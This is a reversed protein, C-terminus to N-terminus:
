GGAIMEAIYLAVSDLRARASRALGATEKDKEARLEEAKARAGAEAEAILREALAKGEARAKELQTERFAEAAHIIAAAKEAAEIKLKEAREEAKLIEDLGDMAGASVREKTM